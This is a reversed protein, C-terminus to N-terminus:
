PQKRFVMSDAGSPPNQAKSWYQQLTKMTEVLDEFSNPKVFYTNAGLQYAKRVDRELDSSSLVVTPVTAHEQHCMIWELVDFGSKRPMQLDLIIFNPLPNAVRDAFAGLGQLYLLLQDGDTLIKVGMPIGAKEIAKRLLFAYDSNDEAIIIIGPNGM